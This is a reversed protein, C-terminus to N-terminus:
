KTRHLMILDSAIEIEYGHAMYNALKYRAKENMNRTAKKYVLQEFFQDFNMETKGDECAALTREVFSKPM